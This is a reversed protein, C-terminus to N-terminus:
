CDPINSEERLQLTKDVLDPRTICLSTALTIVKFQNSESLTNFKEFVEAARLNDVTSLMLKFLKDVDSM